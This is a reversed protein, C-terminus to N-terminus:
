SEGGQRNLLPQFAARTKKSKAEVRTDLAPKPADFFVRQTVPEYRSLDTILHGKPAGAFAEILRKHNQAPTSSRKM